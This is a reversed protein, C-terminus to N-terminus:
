DILTCSGGFNGLRLDALGKPHQDFLGPDGPPSSYLLSPVVWWLAAQALTAVWFTLRPQSRLLEVIISTHLM